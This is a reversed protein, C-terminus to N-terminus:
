PAKRRQRAAPFYRRQYATRVLKFDRKNEPTKRPPSPQGPEGDAAEAPEDTDGAPDPTDTDTASVWARVADAVEGPYLWRQEDPDFYRPAGIRELITEV